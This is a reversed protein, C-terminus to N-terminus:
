QQAVDRALRAEERHRVVTLRERCRAEDARIADILKMQRDVSLTNTSRLTYVARASTDFLKAVQRLGYADTLDRISMVELPLTRYDPRNITSM